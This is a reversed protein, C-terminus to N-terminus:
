VESRVIYRHLEMLNDKIKLTRRLGLVQQNELIQGDIFGNCILNYLHRIYPALKQTNCVM